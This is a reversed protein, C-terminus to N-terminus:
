KEVDEKIEEQVDIYYGSDFLDPNDYDVWAMRALFNMIAESLKM